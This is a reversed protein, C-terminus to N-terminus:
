ATLVTASPRATSGTISSAATYITQGNQQVDIWLLRDNFQVKDVFSERRIKDWGQSFINKDSATSQAVIYNKFDTKSPRTYFAAAGLAVLLILIILSKM